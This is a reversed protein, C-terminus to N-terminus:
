VSGSDCRVFHILSEPGLDEFAVEVPMGIRVEEPPCAVLRSAIRPGEELDVLIVVLPCEKALAPDHGVRDITFSHLTGRGSLEQWEWDDGLCTPCRQRPHAFFGDRPCRQLILRGVRAADFYPASIPTRWPIPRGDESVPQM